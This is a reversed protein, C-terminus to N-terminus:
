TMSILLVFNALFHLSFRKKDKNSELIKRKRDKSAVRFFSSVKPRLIEEVADQVDTEFIQAKSLKREWHAALWIKSLPGKKALVFQAYFM